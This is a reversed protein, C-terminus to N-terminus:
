HCRFFGDAGPGPFGLTARLRWAILLAAALALATQARRMAAPSIKARLWGYNAQALWLLPLTGCGFALMFEVGRLASGTMAALGILFYLPGCPLLPTSVGVIAAATVRSRRALTSQIRLLLRSLAPIRPLLHRDLRFAVVLFFAVMLWPLWALVTTNIVSLVVSGAAGALAGLFAYSALRTLQYVVTVTLADGSGRAPTLWCAIPGCMGLCHLSTVLGAIFAAAPSDIHGPTM